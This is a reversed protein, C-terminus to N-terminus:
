VKIAQQQKAHRMGDKFGEIAVTVVQKTTKLIVEKKAQGDKGTRKTYQNAVINAAPKSLLVAAGAAAGAAVAKPLAVIAIKRAAKGRLGPKTLSSKCHYTAEGLKFAPQRVIEPNLNQMLVQELQPAGGKIGRLMAVAHQPQVTSPSM